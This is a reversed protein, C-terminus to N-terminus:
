NLSSSRNRLESLSVKPWVGSNKEVQDKGSPQTIIVTPKGLNFPWLSPSFSLCFSLYWNLHCSFHMKNGLRPLSFWWKTPWVPWAHYMTLFSVLFHSQWSTLDDPAVQCRTATGRNDKECLPDSAPRVWQQPEMVENLTMKMCGVQAPPHPPLRAHPHSPSYMYIWPQNIDIYPM